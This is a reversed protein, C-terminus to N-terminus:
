IKHKKYCYHFYRACVYLDGKLFIRGQRSTTKKGTFSNLIECYYTALSDSVSTSRIHLQGNKTLIFKSEPIIPARMGSPEQRLWNIIQLKGFMQRTKCKLVGINGQIVYGNEVYIEYDSLIETFFFSLFTILEIKIFSPVCM